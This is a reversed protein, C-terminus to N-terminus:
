NDNKKCRVSFMNFKAHNYRLVGTINYLLHRYWANIGDSSSSWFYAYTGYYNASGEAMDGLLLANFGGANSAKSTGGTNSGNGSTVVPTISKM